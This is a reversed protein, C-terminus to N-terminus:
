SAGTVEKDVRGVMWVLESNAATVESIIVTFSADDLLKVMRDIPRYWARQGSLKIRTDELRWSWSPKGEPRIVFRAVLIGGPALTHFSGAFVARVTEDDLYHIMDLLLIVDALNPTPPINQAWGRTIKGRDGTTISAVRVREPDPDIAFVKADEFRELCWCAPVGYGCGIDVITGVAKTHALMQPLDGFMPDFQLKFRTFMRPYAELTRFRYRIRQNIDKNGIAANKKYVRVFYLNLLPPLLLFAGILSYAIGLFSTIGISHLLSHDAFCLVGFGILTSSAALFISSRVLAYSPHNIERYRQHARVCFISYDIGMGLIIISLMLAPIDLPHGILKLTGLTCIYAFLVPLLTLLTLQLNLYFFALLLALILGIVVLMTTFTSFLIEALRKTFNAADFITNDKGYRSFFDATDYNAGPLATIFQILGSGHTNESIGLLSYYRAPITLPQASFEPNLLAYFDAFADPTFGLARGATLLMRQVEGARGQEWFTHWASLNQKGKEKGPFIMSPVFAATLTDQRIDQEFQVLLRDNSDQIETISDATHMLFIRDGIKGWVETFLADAKMTENSVTNMSSLSVHFAPKAFFLLTCALLAAAIAGPKGTNYLINVLGRLPLARNSGPPMTPFIRPFISHVFLFSFLIGLATFQGLETFIPFGSFGLILFAGITTIVAMIGIARVEYSAEKGKTEQPRDLFLLYAIGHDVTISIIAGGFGLVMISISSHFLSYVFLAASTGALAPVLSLLGILPRPFSFLLLLGIGVTALILALQVDHRIIRENDLAARYAGVPTLTLQLGLSAYKEALERSTTALLEAISRASATDTGGALPRATVLLHHGDGSLLSGKYLRSNLSPALPAMKALILDKLGLPDLGIFKAQGIGEMSSLGTYLRHIRESIRTKTLLPAVDRELEEESFLLPLNRAAHVALEPIMNGVADIGVQAFLGSQEMKQELFAGSDVLIDPDDGSNMIDVAIQDHIPHHKFIALGDAIVKEGAPLSRVVDTDIDLRLLGLVTCGIILLAVISLLRYNMM